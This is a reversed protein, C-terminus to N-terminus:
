LSFSDEKDQYATNIRTAQGLEALARATKEKGILKELVAIRKKYKTVIPGVVDKSLETVRRKVEADIEREKKKLRAEQAEQAKKRTNYEAQQEAAQQKLEEREQNLQIHQAEMEAKIKQEKERLEQEKQMIERLKANKKRDLLDHTLEELETYQLRQQNVAATLTDRKEKLSDLAKEARQRDRETKYESIEMHRKKSRVTDIDYGMKEALEEAKVRIIDNTLTNLATNSKVKLKINGDRGVSFLEPRTEQLRVVNAKDNCVEPTYHIGAAECAKELPTKIGNDRLCGSLNVTGRSDIGVYRIHVHPTAEDMHRDMSIPSLGAARLEKLAMKWVERIYEDNEPQEDLSGLQIIMEQPMHKKRWEEMTLERKYNRRARENQADLVGRFHKEYFMVEAETSNAARNVGEKNQTWNWHGNRPHGDKSFENKWKRNYLTRDNHKTTDKARSNNLSVKM